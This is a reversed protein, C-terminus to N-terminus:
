KAPQSATSQEEPFWYLSQALALAGLVTQVIVVWMVVKAYSTQRNSLQTNSAIVRAAEVAEADRRQDALRGQLAEYRLKFVDLCIRDQDNFQWHGDLGQKRLRELEDLYEVRAVEVEFRTVPEPETPRHAVRQAYDRARQEDAMQALVSPFIKPESPRKAGDDGHADNSM